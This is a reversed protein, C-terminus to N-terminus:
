TTKKPRGRRRIMNVPSNTEDTSGHYKTLASAHYTGLPQDLNDEHAIVYTTAGKREIITYPGDRKPVFKNTLGKSANSLVHTEVLVKSGVEFSASDRRSDNTYQKNHDQKKEQTERATQLVEALTLLHPTIGAVFNESLTIARIDHNVDDITRLERGFTIYAPTYGTSECRATNMAFRISPLKISWNQHEQGVQIALQAKLDRNKREVPNAEPHYVPTLVHDIQLVYVVKQMVASIFQVGNDSIIKRPVGYRLFIEDILTKACIEATAEVLAFLEVWRSAVDEVILIWQHGTGTLPLPGFLDIAIIEFRQNSSVTQYLGLPKLNTSKYRQCELCEKVHKAIDGRMGQWYYRSAIRQTTRDVGYHGATDANHYFQLINQRENEPVVLQADDSDENSYRYLIGDNMVYGRKSWLAADDSHKEFCQIIHSLVPDTLQSVRINNVGKRPFEVHFALIETTETLPPRSLMDAIINTKGPKYDIHLKYPQLLLAWRALRGSPSKLTMLWKLPQHDTILRIDAGELYGRFKQVAWVIALAERETTSYNKEAANLLRSAYEVPHENESEGQLLVAGLAYASADTKLLFPLNYDAQKLIPSTILLNKLSEFSNQELETWKWTVNNKILQTLPKSVNAFNQIFRRYWSCAQIFSLLEKSNRPAARNKIASIKQPDMQIGEPTLLHGLYKVKRCAFRCKQKNVRLNFDRLRKLVRKLDHLHNEFTESCLIIDDLYAFLTIDGLAVKFRDILRQFTAPANRLGFAMKKFMFMGFPSVFATKEQHSPNVGIQWYGSQLDLTTMYKTTKAEHLLDDVRPLPYHDPKTIANLGRYDICVRITNDKKPIMVVPAAWSSECEVIIGNKLMNDIEAKLQLKRQPSLRYPPSAVPLHSGTDIHHEAYPTTALPENFIDSNEFLLNDLAERQENTLDIGDEKKLIKLDVMNLTININRLFEDANKDNIKPLKIPPAFLRLDRGPAPADPPLVDRFINQTSEPSYDNSYNIVPGYDENIASGLMQDPTAPIPSIKRKAEVYEIFSSMGLAAEQVAEEQKLLEGAADMTFLSVSTPETFSFKRRYDDEFHWFRQAM